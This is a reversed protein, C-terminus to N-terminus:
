RGSKVGEGTMPVFRVGTISRERIKGDRKEFLKLEQYYTGVPIVTRGGEALQDLLPQPVHDPACTVIVADFPAHEEWGIYGDGCRVTINTYGLDRRYNDRFSKRTFHSTDRIKEM